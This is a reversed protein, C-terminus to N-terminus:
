DNYSKMKQSIQKADVSEETSENQQSESKVHRVRRTQPTTYQETTTLQQRRPTRREPMKATCLSAYHGIKKCINCQTNKAPMNSSTGHQVTELM